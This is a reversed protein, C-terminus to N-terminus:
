RIRSTLMASGIKKQKPTARLAVGFCFFPSEEIPPHPEADNSRAGQDGLPAFLGEAM